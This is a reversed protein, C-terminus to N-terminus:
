QVRRPQFFDYLSVFEHTTDYVNNALAEWVTDDITIDKCLIEVDPDPLHNKFLTAPNAV